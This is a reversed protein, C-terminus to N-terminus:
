SFLGWVWSTRRLNTSSKASAPAYSLPYPLSVKMLRSTLESGLVGPMTQDTVLLDYARSWIVDSYHEALLRYPKASAALARGAEM